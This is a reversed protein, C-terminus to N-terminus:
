SLVEATDPMHSPHHCRFRVAGLSTEDPITSTCIDTARDCRPAFPCGAPLNTLSPTMGSIQFLRGKPEQGEPLSQLLGVTYPHKPRDLVEDAPGEEVIRGAYMVAIRDSIEAAVGLDHTIWILGTDRDRALTQILYLIQAQITVDLATTPEDAIILEPENLLAIAIAVRQRMGGSLEHPYNKLREGPSPIGVDALGKESLRLAEAKTVDRHLRIAEIMQTDIRLVPNLTMLPDQFVMALKNGRLRAMDSDSKGFLEEGSLKISGEVVRGPADILGMVSFGAVSKGSGSEGVLGVVEGKKVTLDIGDVAKALWGRGSFQTKLGRIELANETM